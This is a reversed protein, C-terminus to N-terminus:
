IISTAKVKGSWWQASKFESDKITCKRLYYISWKFLLVRPKLRAQASSCVKLGQIKPVSCITEKQNYNMHPAWTEKQISYLLVRSSTLLSQLVVKTHLTKSALTLIGGWGGWRGDRSSCSGAAVREGGIECPESLGQTRFIRTKRGHSNTLVQHLASPSLDM